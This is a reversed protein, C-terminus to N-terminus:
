TTTRGRDGQDGAFLPMEKPVVVLGDSSVTFHRKDQKRDMGLTFGEPVRNDKDLVAKSLRAESGVRCSSLIISEEVRAGPGVYVGPGIVSRSVTAGEIVAGNCVLSETVAIDNTAGSDPAMLQAPPWASVHSRIPWEPDQLALPADAGLLEMHARWYVDLTGVDRWYGSGNGEMGGFIRVFVRDGARIMAPIVDKGFDHSSDRKSDEVVRKVLIDTDFVYVGMSCLAAKKEAPLTAPDDPKEQLARVRMNKQVDLVGFRTAEPCPVRVAGITLDADSDMHQQLLRGYDMKYVHDGSLVLVYDPREHELTYINQYIADATGLYWHSTLRMQPPNVEIYEGLQPNYVNWGLRIHRNLSDSKYQTLVHVRRVGSNLCNSLTFDILRYNGAFPVAPKARDRTLPYLREGQGGALIISVTRGLAAMTEAEHRDQVDMSRM